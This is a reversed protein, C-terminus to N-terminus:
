RRSFLADICPGLLASTLPSRRESLGFRRLYDAIAQKSTGAKQLWFPECEVIVHAIKGGALSESAGQLIQWEFGDVDIKLLDVHDVRLSALLEDLTRIRVEFRQGDSADSAMSATRNPYTLQDAQHLSGTGPRDGLAEAIVTVQTLGNREVAETLIARNTPVPEIAIVHGSPGVIRASLLSFYGINAGVDVVTM